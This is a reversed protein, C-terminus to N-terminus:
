EEEEAAAAAEELARKTAKNLTDADLVLMEQAQRLEDNPFDDPDPIHFTFIGVVKGNSGFVPMGPEQEVGSRGVWMLRPKEVKGALRGESIVITRGYYKHLRSVTLISQGLEAGVADNYNIAEPKEKMKEFDKVRLWSLDLEADTALLSAEVGVTDDGYLVKINSPTIQRGIAKLFRSTGLKVSACVILGKNDIVMGDIEQEVETPGNQTEVKAVYKITVLGKKIKEHVDQYVKPTTEGMLSTSPIMVLLSLGVIQHFKSFRQM